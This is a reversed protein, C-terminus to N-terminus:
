TYTAAKRQASGWGLATGVTYLILLSSLRGTDLLHVTSDYVSLCINTIKFWQTYLGRSKWVTNFRELRFNNQNCIRYFYM